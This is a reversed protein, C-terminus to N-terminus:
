LPGDCIHLVTYAQGHLKKWGHPTTGCIRPRRPTSNYRDIFTLSEPAPRAVSADQVGKTAHLVM